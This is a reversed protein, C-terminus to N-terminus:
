SGERLAFSVDVPGVVAAPFVRLGVAPESGPEWPGAFSRAGVQLRLPAEPRERDVELVVPLEVGGPLEFGPGPERFARRYAELPGEWLRARRISRSTWLDRQLGHLPRSRFPSDDRLAHLGLFSVGGAELAVFGPERGEAFRLTLRLEMRTWPLDPLAIRLPAVELPTAGPADEAPHMHLGEGRVLAEPPLEVFGPPRGGGEWTVALEVRGEGHDLVQLAEAFPELTRELEVAADVQRALDRVRELNHDRFRTEQLDGRAAMRERLDQLLERARDVDGALCAQHAAQMERAARREPETDYRGVWAELRRDVLEAVLKRRPGEEAVSLLERALHVDGDLYARYAGVVPDAEAGASRLLDLLAGAALEDVPVRREVRSETVGFVLVRDEVATLVRATGKDARLRHRGVRRIVVEPAGDREARLVRLVEGRLDLTRRLLDRAARLDALVEGLMPIERPDPMRTIGEELLELRRRGEEEPLPRTGTVELARGLLTEGRGVAREAAAELRARAEEARGAAGPVVTELAELKKVAKMATAVRGEKALRDIRTELAEVRERPLKLLRAVVARRRQEVALYDDELLVEQSGAADLARATVRRAEEPTALGLPHEELVRELGTEMGERLEASLEGHRAEFREQCSTVVGHLKREVQPPLQGPLAPLLQDRLHGRVVEEAESRRGQRLLGLADELIRRARGEQETVLRAGLADLDEELSERLSAPLASARRHAEGLIRALVEGREAERGQELLGQLREVRPDQRPAAPPEPAKPGPSERSPGFVLLGGGLLLVGSAAVVLGVLRGKRTQPARKAGAPERGAQVAELDQAFSAADQYRRHPDKELAKLLVRDLAAPVQPVLRSPPVPEAYLLGTLVQALTEGDFPPRGTLCRYLTAALSFLDSRADVREPSRAQEPAMYQPTGLTGGDQTMRPDDERRALGLDLIRVRGSPQVMVNAPKLDRHVVGHEHAHGLAALLELGMEVVREPPLRGGRSELHRDVDRGPVLEMAYWWFGKGSGADVARVIGPHDLVGATRAERVLREARRRGRSGDATIVKIAVRRDLTEQRALYVCGMSGRGIEREIRYGPIPPRDDGTPPGSM